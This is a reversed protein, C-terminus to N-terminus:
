LRNKEDEIARHKLIRNLMAMIFVVFSIIFVTNEPLVNRVEDPMMSWVYLTSDPWTLIFGSIVSSVFGVKLSIYRWCVKFEIVIENWIEKLVGKLESFLKKSKNM